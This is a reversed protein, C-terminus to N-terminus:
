SQKALIHTNILELDALISQERQSLFQIKEELLNALAGAGIAGGNEVDFISMNKGKADMYQLAYNLRTRLHNIETSISSLRVNLSSIQTSLLALRAQEQQAVRAAALEDRTLQLEDRTASLEQKQLSVSMALWYLACGAVIPNMLGGLFDGLEGWTSTSKSLPAGLIAGFWIFYFAIAAIGIAATWRLSRRLKIEITELDM